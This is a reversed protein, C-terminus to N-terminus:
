KACLLYNDSCSPHMKHPFRITTGGGPLSHTNASSCPPWWPIDLIFFINCSRKHPLGPHVLVNFLQYFFTLLSHKKFRAEGGIAGSCCHFHGVLGHAITCKSSSAPGTSPFINITIISSCEFRAWTKLM